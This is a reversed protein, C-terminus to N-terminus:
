QIENEDQVTESSDEDAEENSTKDSVGDATTDNSDKEDQSDNTSSEDTGSTESDSVTDPTTTPTTTPAKQSEDNSIDESTESTPNGITIVKNGDNYGIKVEDPESCSGWNTIIHVQASDEYCVIEFELQNNAELEDTCMPITFYKVSTDSNVDGIVIKCYGSQANGTAKITVKYSGKSLSYTNTVQEVTPTVETSQGNEIRVVTMEASFTAAQIINERSTISSTFYAFATFGMAGMCLIISGIAVAIRRLFVKENEKM